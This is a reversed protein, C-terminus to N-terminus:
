PYRNKLKRKQIEKLHRVTIRDHERNMAEKARIMQDIDLIHCMGAPLEIKIAQRFVEDFDGLGLIESLCDVNGLDTKIYLNKLKTGQEPTLNVPLDTRPRHAPHLDSLAKQIRMLNTETFRCCIDVDRTVLTVGHAVAAFGGVLVFEVESVILRRVLESLNQM